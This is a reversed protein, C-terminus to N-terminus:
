SHTKAAFWAQLRPRVRLFALYLRELAWLLPPLRALRGFWALAPTARWLAAFAAAGSLIPGGQEQAHFRALLAERGLPCSEASGPESVDVFAIRQGGDLRRFLAIERQCLPCSGDYWVTLQRGSAPKHVSM